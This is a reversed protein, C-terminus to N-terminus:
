QFKLSCFIWVLKQLVRYTYGLSNEGEKDSDLRVVVSLWVFLEPSGLFIFSLRLYHPRVLKQNQKGYLNSIQSNSNKHYKSVFHSVRNLYLPNFPIHNLYERKALFM